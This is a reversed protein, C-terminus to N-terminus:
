QGRSQVKSNEPAKRENKQDKDNNLVAFVRDTYSPPRHDWFQSRPPNLVRGTCYRSDGRRPLLLPPALASTRTGPWTGAHWEHWPGALGGPTITPAHTAGLPM